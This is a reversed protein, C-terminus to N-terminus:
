FEGQSQFHFVMNSSESYQHSASNIRFSFNAREKKGDSMKGALIGDTRILLACRGATVTAVPVNEVCATHAMSIQLQNADMNVNFFYIQPYQFTHLRCPVTVSTSHQQSPQASQASSHEENVSKMPLSALQPIYACGVAISSKWRHQLQFLDCKCLCGLTINKLHKQLYYFCVTSIQLLKTVYKHMILKYKQFDRHVTM